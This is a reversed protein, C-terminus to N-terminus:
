KRTGANYKAILKKMGLNLEKEYENDLRGIHVNVADEWWKTGKVKGTRHGSKHKRDKTGRDVLHSHFGLYKGKVRRAKVYAGKVNDTDFRAVQISKYLNGTKKKNRSKLNQKATKALPRLVKTASNILLSKKTHNALGKYARAIEIAGFTEFTVSIAGAELKGKGM